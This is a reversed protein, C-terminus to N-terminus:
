NGLKGLGVCAVFKCNLGMCALNQIITMPPRVFFLSIGLKSRLDLSKVENFHDVTKQDSLDFPKCFSIGLLYGENPKRAHTFDLFRDAWM